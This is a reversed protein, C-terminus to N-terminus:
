RGTPQQYCQALKAILEDARLSDAASRDSIKALILYGVILFIVNLVILALSIPQTKLSDVVGTAVKGAEEPLGPNM